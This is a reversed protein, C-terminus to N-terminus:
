GSFLIDELDRAERLHQYEATQAVLDNSSLGKLQSTLDDFARNKLRLGDDANDGGKGGGGGAKFPAKFPGKRTIGALGVGAVADEEVQLMYEKDGSLGEFVVLGGSGNGGCAAAGSGSGTKGRGKEKGADTPLSTPQIKTHNEEYIDEGVITLWYKFAGHFVFSIAYQEDVVAWEVRGEECPFSERYHNYGIKVNGTYPPPAAVAATDTPIDAAAKGGNQEPKKKAGPQEAVAAKKKASSPIVPLKAGSAKKKVKSKASSAKPVTRPRPRAAPVGAAPALNSSSATGISTGSISFIPAPQVGAAGGRGSGGGPRPLGGGSRAGGGRKKSNM